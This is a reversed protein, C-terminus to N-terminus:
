ENSRLTVEVRYSSWELSDTEHKDSITTMTKRKKKRECEGKETRQQRNLMWSSSLVRM